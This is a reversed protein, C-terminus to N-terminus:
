PAVPASELIEGRIRKIMADLSELTGGALNETAGADSVEDCLLCALDTATMGLYRSERARALVQDIPRGTIEVTRGMISAVRGVLSRYSLTEPGVLDVVRPAVDDRELAGLIARAADRASVPQLRYAGDGPIEVVSERDIRSMLPTLFEDGAGLIYSPRFVTASLGSRFLEVEGAMKGLFYPNTCHVNMGYHAIGLGSLFVLRKVGQERCAAMVNVLGSPDTRDAGAGTSVSATYVLGDCGSLAPILTAMAPRGLDAVRVPTGGFSEVLRAGSESRVIGVVSVGQRRCMDFTHRGVLGNAGVIAIKSIM